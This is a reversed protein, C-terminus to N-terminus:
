PLDSTRGPRLVASDLRIVGTQGNGLSYLEYGGGTLLKYQFQQGTLPDHVLHADVEDLTVPLRGRKWGFALIAAHLELLRLRTRSVAGSVLRASVVRPRSRYALQLAIDDSSSVGGPKFLQNPPPGALWGIEPGNFRVEYQDMATEAMKVSSQVLAQRQVTTMKRLASAVAADDIEGPLPTGSDGVSIRSL